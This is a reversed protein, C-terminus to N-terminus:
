FRKEVISGIQEAKPAMKAKGTYTASKTNKPRLRGAYAASLNAAVGQLNSVSKEIFHSNRQIREKLQGVVTELQTRLELLRWGMTLSAGGEEVLVEGIRRLTLTGADVQMIIAFHDQIRLRDRDLAKLAALSEDKERMVSILNEFDLMILLHRERELIELCRLYLVNMRELVLVLNQAKLIM